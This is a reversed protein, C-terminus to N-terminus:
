TACGHMGRVCGEGTQKNACGHMGQAGVAQKVRARPMLGDATASAPFGTGWQPVLPAGPSLLVLIVDLGAAWRASARAHKPKLQQLAQPMLKPLQTVLGLLLVVSTACRLRWCRTSMSQSRRRRPFLAAAAALAVLLAALLTTSPALSLEMWDHHRRLQQPFLSRGGDKNILEASHTRPDVLTADVLFGVTPEM